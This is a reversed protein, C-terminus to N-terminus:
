LKIVANIPWHDSAPGYNNRDIVASSVQVGPSGFIYDIKGLGPFTAGDSSGGNSVRFTDVLPVPPSEIEGKLYKIAKANETGDIVNLDGTFFILSGPRKYSEIVGEVEVASQYQGEQGCCM